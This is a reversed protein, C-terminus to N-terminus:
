RQDELDVKNGVLILSANPAKDKVNKAWLDVKEFTDKDTISYVIMAGLSKKYYM